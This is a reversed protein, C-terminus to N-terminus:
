VVQRIAHLTCIDLCGHVFQQMPGAHMCAPYCLKFNPLWLRQLAEMYHQCAYVGAPHDKKAAATGTADAGLFPIGAASLLEKANSLLARVRKHGEEEQQVRYKAERLQSELHSLRAQQEQIVREKAERERNAAAAANRHKQM